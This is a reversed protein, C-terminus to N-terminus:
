DGVQSSGPPMERLRQACAIVIERRRAESAVSWEAIEDLTRGCGVCVQDADLRCIKNCPSAAPDLAPM